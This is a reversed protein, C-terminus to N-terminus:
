MAKKAAKALRALEDGFGAVLEWPDRVLEPDALAGFGVSDEQSVVTVNLGMGPFVPGLPYLAVIRAGGLYLAVPPGPVNSILLDCAAPLHEGLSTYLRAACSVTVSPLADVLEALTESGLAEQMRKAAGMGEHIARLRAVPGSIDTALSAFVLSVANARDSPGDGRVSVPVASVLSREPLLDRRALYARLAGSVVAMVVDNVSVGFARAVLKVDSLPVASYAIGRRGSDPGNLVSRSTAFPFAGPGSESGFALLRGVRALAGIGSVGARVSRLPLLAVNPVAGLLLSWPGPPTSAVHAVAPTPRPPQPAKPTLSFLSAMFEMGAMGDMLAHHLKAVIAVYGDDLGEVVHMEWLPRDRDLPQEDLAAAFAALARAGVPRPLKARRVHQKVDVDPEEVWVPRDIGLPVPVLRRRLPPLLHLHDGIHRRLKAFRYGGPVTSPDLVMVAMVHLHTKPTEAALFLADLAGLRRAAM